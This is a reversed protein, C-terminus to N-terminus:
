GLHRVEPWLDAWPRQLGRCVWVPRGQEDNDLGVGNDVTAAREVSGCWRGLTAEDYGVVVVTRAHEPPPGLEALAVHGSFVPVGPAFRAVAGAQGYNATLVVTEPDGTGRVVDEVTAALEPWGVTEGADYNVEVVPTGGLRDVPVVPLFLVAAVALSGALAAVLLGLRTWSRAAWGAVPQAGAALLVPYLGALYYPKGGTVVFVVLLVLYAVGVFRVARLEAARLLRVLGLVWVPVLFPSVLVLQFPVLELRSASTGSGGAAIAEAMDLQPWGERAQWWLNPAWLLLAALAGAWVWPSRLLRRPGALLVGAAVGLLLFAMLSKVQLGVGAVLGALLWLREDRLTGRVALWVVATWALVDYATTSALHGAALTVAGVAVCGAALVQGGRAAGLERATVGALLATLGAALAPPVRLGALSGGVMADTAHVLLPVLPPQDAYGWAPHGGVLLFYLEDRHYGYGGATAVLLAVLAAAVLALPRWAVPARAARRDEV